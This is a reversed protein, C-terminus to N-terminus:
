TPPFVPWLHPSHRNSSLPPVQHIYIISEPGPATPPIRAKIVVVYKFVNKINQTQGGCKLKLSHTSDIPPYFFIPIIYTGTNSVTSAAAWDM